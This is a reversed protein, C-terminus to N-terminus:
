KYDKLDLAYSHGNKTLNNVSLKMSFRRIGGPITYVKSLNPSESSSISEYVIIRYEHQYKFYPDKIFLNDAVNETFLHKSLELTTFGYNIKGHSLAYGETSCTPLLSDFKAYDTLVLYGNECHFDNIVKEDIVIRNNLIEEEEVAYTCYIAYGLNKYIAINSFVSGERIDGQGHKGKRELEHYYRASHMYLKGNLFDEAYNEKSTFKILYKIM